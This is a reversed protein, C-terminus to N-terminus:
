SSEDGHCIYRKEANDVARRSHSRLGRAVTAQVEDDLLLCGTIDNRPASVCVLDMRLAMLQRVNPVSSVNAILQSKVPLTSIAPEIAPSSIM